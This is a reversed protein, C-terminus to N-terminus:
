VCILCFWILGFTEKQHSFFSSNGPFFSKLASILVVVIFVCMIKPQAQAQVVNTSYIFM